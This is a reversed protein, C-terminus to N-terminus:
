VWGLRGKLWTAFLDKAVDLGAAGIAEQLPELARKKKGPPSKDIETKLIRMFDEVDDPSPWLGTARLAKATPSVPGSFKVGGMGGVPYTSVNLFGDEVLRLIARRAVDEALGTADVLDRLHAAAGREDARVVALLLPYERNDWSSSIHGKDSMEIAGPLHGSM